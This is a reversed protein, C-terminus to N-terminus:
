LSLLPFGTRPLVDLPPEARTVNEKASAQGPRFHADTLCSQFAVGEEASALLPMAYSEDCGRPTRCLYGKLTM